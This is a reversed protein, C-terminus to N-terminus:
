QDKDKTRELFLLHALGLDSDDRGDQENQSAADHKHCDRSNNEFVNLSPCSQLRNIKHYDSQGCHTKTIKYCTLVKPMGTVLFRTPFIM